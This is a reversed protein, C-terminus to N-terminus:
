GYVVSKGTQKYRKENEDWVVRAIVKGDLQLVIPEHNGGGFQALVEALALKITELPAEINTGSKQDGLMALFEKNPPIVAGQALRPIHIESIESLDFGFRKGGIIPVWDPVDFHLLNLARIMWNLGTIVGNALGEIGGLIGNIIGKIFNWVGEFAKKIADFVTKVITGFNKFVGGITGLVAGLAKFIPVVTAQIIGAVVKFIPVLVAKIVNGIAKLIEFVPRLCETLIEIIPSFLELIPELIEGLLDFIVSLVDFIPELLAVIPELIAGVLELLPALLKAIPELIKGVLGVISEFVPMIASLLKSIIPLITNALVEFAPQLATLVDQLVPLIAEAIQQIIPMITQVLSVIVPLILDAVQGIIEAIPPLLNSIVPLIAEVIPVLANVIKEVVPWLTQLAKRIAGILDGVTQLVPNDSTQLGEQLGQLIGDIGQKIAKYVKSWNIKGILTVAFTVIGNILSVLGDKFTKGDINNLFANIGNALKTAAEKWDIQSIFSVFAKAIGNCLNAINTMLTEFDIDTFIKMFAKGFKTGIGIWDIGTVFTGIATGVANVLGTITNIIANVDLKDIFGTIFGAIKTGVLAWDIKHILGDAFQWFASYISGLAQGIKKADLLRLLTNFVEGVKSGIDKLNLGELFTTISSALRNIFNAVKPVVNNKVNDLIGIIKDHIVKGVETFDANKWADKIMKAFDSVAGEADAKEYTVDLLGNDSSNSSKDTDDKIVDLKDYAALKEETEEAADGTKELSKAYDYQNAKAKYIYKQGVLTAFFKGLTEMTLSLSEMLKNLLPIVVTALPQFATALSGKLRNFSMVLSSIQVNVEDSQTALTKFASVFYTRLRKILYYTSRFGLGFMLVNRKLKKFGQSLDTTTSKGSKGFKTMNSFASKAKSAVSALGSIIKKLGSAVKKIANYGTKFGKALASGIQAATSIIKKGVSVVKSMANFVKGAAPHAESFKSVWGSFAAKLGGSKAKIQDLKSTTDAVRSNIKNLEATTDGNAGFRFAKGETVMNTLSNKVAEIKGKLTDADQEAKVFAEPKADGSRKLEKFKEAAEAAKTELKSLEKLQKQYDATYPNMNKQVTTPVKGNKGANGKGFGAINNATMQMSRIEKNMEALDEKTATFRVAEGQRKMERMDDLVKDLEAKTKTIDYQLNEWASDTTGSVAAMREAKEKLEKLKETLGQAKTQAQSYEDTFKSNDITTNFEQVHKNVNAIATALREYVSLLSEAAKTSMDGINVYQEPSIKGTGATIDSIQKEISRREQQLRNYEKLQSINSRMENLLPTGDENEFLRMKETVETLRAQFRELEASDKKFTESTAGAKSVESNLRAQAASAEKIDKKLSSLASSVSKSMKSTDVSSLVGEISKRLGSLRQSMDKNVQNIDVKSLDVDTVELNVPVIVPKEAM